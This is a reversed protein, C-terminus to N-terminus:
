CYFLVYCLYQILILYSFVGLQYSTAFLRVDALVVQFELANDSAMGHLWGLISHGGGQIYGGAIGVTNSSGGVVMAGKSGLYAYVERLQVGAGITVARISKSPTVGEPVTPIFADVLSINRLGQTLIQLSYPASSRGLFDHGTNKIVLKINHQAAFKVVTQIHQPNQVKAAFLSIRGQKCPM